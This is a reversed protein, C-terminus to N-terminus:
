AFELRPGPARARYLAASYGADNLAADSCARPAEARLESDGGVQREFAADSGARTWRTTASARRGRRRGRARAVASLESPLWRADASRVVVAPIAVEAAGSARAANGFLAARSAASAFLAAPAAASKAPSSGYAGDGGTEDAM